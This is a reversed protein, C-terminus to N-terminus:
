TYDKEHYDPHLTTGTLEFWKRVTYSYEKCFITSWGFGWLEEAKVVIDTSGSPFEISKNVGATFNGSEETYRQGNHTYKVTFRAVYGGCNRVVIIGSM